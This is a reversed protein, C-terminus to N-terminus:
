IRRPPIVPFGERQRNGGRLARVIETAALATLAGAFNNLLDRQTDFFYSTSPKLMGHKEGLVLYSAYEMLEHIAGMGMICLVGGLRAQWLTLPLKLELARHILLMGVLGFYYHVLIDWSFPLPSKQYWGLSGLNHLLVAIVYLLFHFPHLAFRHRLFYPAWIVPILFLPAFRYTPVKSYFALVVAAVSGLFATLPMPIMSVSHLGQIFGSPVPSSGDARTAWNM